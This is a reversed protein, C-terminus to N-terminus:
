TYDIRGSWFYLFLIHWEALFLLFFTTKENEKKFKLGIIDISKSLNGDNM